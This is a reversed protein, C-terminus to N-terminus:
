RLLLLKRTEVQRGRELRYLYLGSAVARGRQDTGDWQLSYSGAPYVEDVLTKVLQGSLNYLSLEVRGSQPWDFRITTQPNFPNPHNQYLRLTTPLADAGRELAVHTASGGTMAAFIDLKGHGWFNNPLEDTFEDAVANAFLASRIQENTADPYRELYLAVAGAVVPAALSTGSARWHKGEPALIEADASLAPFLDQSLASFLGGGPATIEPKLRGDASPGPSSFEARAGAQSFTGFIRNVYAGVAIVSQATAPLEVSYNGDTPRYRDEEVQLGFQTGTLGLEAWLHIKGRGKAMFRYFESGSLNFRNWDIPEIEDHIAIAFAVKDRDLSQAAWEVVGALEGSGYYLSDQVSTEMQVLRALSHYPSQGELALQQAPSFGERQFGSFGVALHADAAEEVAVTGYLMIDIALGYPYEEGARAKKAMEEQLAALDMYFYTWLSDAELEFDGWHLHNVGDNGAAACFARGPTELLRDLAQEVLSTGDHAGFHTGGSLNVVAPQDRKEAERYIYSAADVMSGKLTPDVFQLFYSLTEARDDENSSPLGKVAILDAEPAMGRYRGAATGNGAATGAVLTGHGETDLPPIHLEGRLAAEIQAQTWLTGYTYGEPPPGTDDTMDWIALIRSKSSDAPQRFDLHFFDIGSDIIGVVVGKGTYGRELPARGAQVWDARVHEAAKDNCYTFPPEREIREVAPHGALAGIAGLPIRATLIDGVVTGVHGGSDRILGQLAVPDGQLLVHTHSVAAKAAGTIKAGLAMKLLPDLKAPASQGSVATTCLLPILLAFLMKLMLM